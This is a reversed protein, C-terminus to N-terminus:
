TSQWCVFYTGFVREHLQITSWEKTPQKMKLYGLRQCMCVGYEPSTNSGDKNSVVPDALKIDM